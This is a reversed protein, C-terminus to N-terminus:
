RGPNKTLTPDATESPHPPSATEQILQYQTGQWRSRLVHSDGVLGAERLQYALEELREPTMEALQTLAQEYAARALKQRTKLM